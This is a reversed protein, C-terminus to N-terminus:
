VGKTFGVSKRKEISRGPGAGKRVHVGSACGRVDYACGYVGGFEACVCKGVSRGIETM